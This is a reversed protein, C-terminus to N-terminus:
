GITEETENLDIRITHADDSKSTTPFTIFRSVYRFRHPATHIQLFRDRRRKWHLSVTPLRSRHSSFSTTSVDNARYWTVVPSLSAHSRIGPNDRRNSSDIAKVDNIRERMRNFSPDSDMTRLFSSISRIPTCRSQIISHNRREDEDSRSSSLPRM